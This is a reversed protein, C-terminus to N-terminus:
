VGRRNGYALVHLRPTVQYGREVAAPVLWALREVITQADIGEPMLWINKLGHRTRLTDVEWLDHDNRVVFKFCVDASARSWEGYVDLAPTIRKAEDIGSNALKPSVNWRCWALQPDPILTGNTEIEVKHRRALLLDCLAALGQRQITPEGGTIVVRRHESTALDAVERATMLRLEDGPVFAEGNQGSWDWTYPTDCWSCNLNCRGLRVFMTPTGATPGEGQLTPGFVESVMLTADDV